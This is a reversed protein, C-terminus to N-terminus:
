RKQSRLWQRVEKLRAQGMEIDHQSTRRSKKEFAHLV